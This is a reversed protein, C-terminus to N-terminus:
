INFFYKIDIREKHNNGIFNGFQCNHAFEYLQILFKENFEFATSYQQSIQWVCELFQLFVPSTEKENEYLHGLRDTFKHGFMLWELLYNKFKDDFL